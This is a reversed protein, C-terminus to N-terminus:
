GKVEKSAFGKMFDTKMESQSRVFIREKGIHGALENAFSAMEPENEFELTTKRGKAFIEIRNFSFPIEFGYVGCACLAESIDPYEIRARQGTMRNWIGISDPLVSYTMIGGTVIKYLAFFATLAWLLLFIQLQAPLKALLAAYTVLISFGAALFFRIEVRTYEGM